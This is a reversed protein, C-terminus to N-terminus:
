HQVFGVPRSHLWLYWAWLLKSETALKKVDMIHSKIMRFADFHLM